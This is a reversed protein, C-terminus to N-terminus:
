FGYAPNKPNFDKETLNVNTQINTFTYEEVLIPQQGQVQPFAYQELRIPYHTTKDFYLRTIHFRFQRRPQPHTAEIVECAIQGLKADPYFKVDVEGFKTEEEWQRIVNNLLPSMGLMTIPYRNEEMVMPSNTALSVTGIMAKLGATEHALMQNNNQGHVYLVERGTAPTKYKIYVSYPEKRQKIDMQQVVMKGNILEQKSFSATFDKVNSLLDASSRAYKLAPALPHEPSVEANPTAAAQQTAPNPQPPQQQASAQSTAFAMGVCVTLRAANSYIRGTHM